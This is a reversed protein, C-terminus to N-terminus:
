REAETGPLTVTRFDPSDIDGGTWEGGCAPHCAHPGTHGQELICRCDAAPQLCTTITTM